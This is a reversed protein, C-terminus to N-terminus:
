RQLRKEGKQNIVYGKFDKGVPIGAMNFLVEPEETEVVEPATVESAQGDVVVRLSKALTNSVKLFAKGPAVSGNTIKAFEVKGAEEKSLALGYIDLNDGAFANWATAASVNGELSGKATASSAIVPINYTGADAKLVVGTEAPVNDVKKLDVTVGDLTATYAELGAPTAHEFDLAYASYLTAFGADSITVPTTQAWAYLGYFYHMTKSDVKKFAIEVDGDAEVTYARNNGESYKETYSANTLGSAQYDTSIVIIDGALRNKVLVWVNSINDIYWDRNGNRFGFNTSQVYVNEGGWQEDDLILAQFTANIGPVDIGSLGGSTYTNNEPANIVKAYDAPFLAVARSSSASNTYGTASAYATITADEVVTIADTYEVPAGGYTYYITPTPNGVKDSQDSTITVSNGSRKIVPANLTVNECTVEITQEDSKTGGISEAYYHYTSSSSVTFPTSYTTLDSKSETDTYYKIVTGDPSGTGLTMTVTRETGNVGTIEASPNPVVEEETHISATLNDLMMQQGGNRGSNYVFTTMREFSDTIHASASAQAESGIKLDGAITIDVGNTEDGTITVHYVKTLVFYSAANSSSLGTNYDAGNNDQYLTCLSTSSSGNPTYTVSSNYGAGKEKMNYIVNIDVKSGGSFNITFSSTYATTGYNGQLAMDFEVKYDTSENYLVVNNLSSYTSSAGNNKGNHFVLLATTEGSIDTRTYQTWGVRNATAASWGTAYDSGSYDQSFVTTYKKDAWANASGLLLVTALLLSKFFFYNKRM